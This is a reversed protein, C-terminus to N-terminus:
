EFSAPEAGCTKFSHLLIKALNQILLLIAFTPNKKVILLDSDVSWSDYDIFKAPSTPNTACM